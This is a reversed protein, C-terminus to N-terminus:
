SALRITPVQTPTAVIPWGLHVARRLSRATVALRATSSNPSLADRIFAALALQLSCQGPSFSLPQDTLYRAISLQWEQHLSLRSKCDSTASRLSEIRKEVRFFPPPLEPPSESPAM